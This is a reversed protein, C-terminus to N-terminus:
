ISSFLYKCHKTRLLPLTCIIESVIPPDEVNQPKYNVGEDPQETPVDSLLKKTIVVKHPHAFVGCKTPAGFYKVNDISGNNKGIPKCLRIGIWTWDAFHTFCVYKVIGAVNCVLM